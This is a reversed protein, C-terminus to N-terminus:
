AERPQHHRGPVTDVPGAAGKLIQEIANLADDPLKVALAQVNEEIESPKRCGSLAVAVTPNRLVWALALRPLSTGLEAAVGKLQDVVEVNRALNPGFLRQGFLSGQYRWDRPDFTTDKTFTGTLLGHAMPGYAMVSVGLERATPFMEREWRRDFLNYGVQNTCIPTLKKSQSLEYSTFNSVGVYRTKGEQRLEELARMTEDIPTEPDPWHILLLDLHDTGLRRLSEEAGRKVTSYRTDFKSTFTVPDWTIAAKSVLIIDKRRSGLARALVEESGGFGYIPATDFLTVGLDIARLIAATVEAEDTGGYHPGGMEWCGFGIASVTLDSDGMKRYDVDDEGKPHRTSFGSGLV